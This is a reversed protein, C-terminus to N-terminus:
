QDLGRAKVRARIAQKLRDFSEPDYVSIEDKKYYLEGGDDFIVSYIKWTDPMENVDRRSYLYCRCIMNNVDMSMGAYIKFEVCNRWQHHKWFYGADSLLEMTILALENEVFPLKYNYTMNTASIQM